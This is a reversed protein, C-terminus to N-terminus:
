AKEIFSRTCINSHKSCFLSQQIDVILQVFISKTCNCTYQVPVTDTYLFTNGMNFLFFHKYECKKCVKFGFDSSVAWFFSFWLKYIHGISDWKVDIVDPLSWKTLFLWCRQVRLVLSDKRLTIKSCNSSWLVNDRSLESCRSRSLSSNGLLTYFLVMKKFLSSSRGGERVLGEKHNLCMWEDATAPIYTPLYYFYPCLCGIRV